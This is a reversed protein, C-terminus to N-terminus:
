VDALHSRSDLLHTGLHCRVTGHRASTGIRAPPLGAAPMREVTEPSFLLAAEPDRFYLEVGDSLRQRPVPRARSTLTQCNM